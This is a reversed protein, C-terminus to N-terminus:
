EYFKGPKTISSFCSSILYALNDWPKGIRRKAAQPPQSFFFSAPAGAGRCFPQQGRCELQHCFQFARYTIRQSQYLVGLQNISLNFLLLLSLMIPSIKLQNETIMTPRTMVKVKKGTITATVYWCRVLFSLIVPLIQRM